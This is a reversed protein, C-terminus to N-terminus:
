LIPILIFAVFVLLHPEGIFHPRVNWLCATRPSRSKRQQKDLKVSLATHLYEYGNVNM